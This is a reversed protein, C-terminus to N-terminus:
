PQNDTTHHVWQWRGQKSGEISPLRIVAGHKKFINLPGRVMERARTRDSVSILPYGFKEAMYQVLEGSSMPQDSNKLVRVLERRLSGHEGNMTRPKARIHRIDDLDIASLEEIKIGLEALQDTAENVAAIAAAYEYRLEEAIKQLKPLAGGLYAHKKILKNLKIGLLTAM